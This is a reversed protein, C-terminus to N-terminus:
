FHQFAGRRELPSGQWIVGHGSVVEGIKQCGQVQELVQIAQPPPLSLVLEFDEGGFLTWAEAQDPFHQALLPHVPLQELLIGVGSRESLQILADALGDSSDMGGIVGTMGLSFLKQVVDLRPHPYQHMRVLEPALEADGRWLLELGARSGGHWGTVVIWDGMRSGQRQIWGGGQGLATISVVRVPARCVDGGIIGTNYLACCDRMGGYLGEVWDVPTTGPMGLGVLLGLPDGCGMAALDSLNAAAARWGVSQPPTTQESFHVNEVLVDTTVILSGQSGPLVAGDDGIMGELCYPAIRSLVGAEGLDAVREM